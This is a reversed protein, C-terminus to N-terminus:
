DDIDMPTKPIEVRDSTECDFVKIGKVWTELVDIGCDKENYNYVTITADAGPGFETLGEINLLRAPQTSALEWGEKHTVGGLRVVRETCERLNSASGALNNSGVLNIRGTPTLEREGGRVQYVGPKMGGLAVCDSTIVSLDLGKARLMCYLCESPLHEGDSIFSAFMKRSALQYWLYNNHRQILHHAGNGLHTSLTAGADEARAMADRDLNSHGISVVVGSDVCQRVFEPAGHREPALTIYKIRGGACEQVRQFEDWDPDRVCELDHAGRPGEEASIYPGELHFGPVSAATDSDSDLEKACYTFATELVDQHATCITPIWSGVGNQRFIATIYALAGIGEESKIRCSRGGYGNVQIDFLAPGAFLDSTESSEDMGQIVEGDFTIDYVGGLLPVNATIKEM